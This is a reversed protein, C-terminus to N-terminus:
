DALDRGPDGLRAQAAGIAEPALGSEAALEILLAEDSAVHDLVAALFSPEGASRRLDDPAIGTLAMFRGLRDPSAALRGLLTIAVTEPDPSEVRRGKATWSGSASSPKGKM